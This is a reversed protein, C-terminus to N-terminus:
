DCLVFVRMSRWLCYVSFHIGYFFDVRFVDWSLWVVIEPMELESGRGDKVATLM